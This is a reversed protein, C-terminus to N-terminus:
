DVFLFENTCLIVQAFEEWTKENPAAGLLKKGIAVEQVTAPRGLATEYASQIAKEVNGGGAAVIRKGFAKAQAVAFPDNLLFLAQPAVTSSVRTDVSATTDAADFLPGFGTRDSRITMLYLTRRPEQFNRTSPGGMKRDLTGASALLSDRIAEAELRKRNMRTFLLNGADKQMAEKGPKNSQQYAESLMMLKHLKKLSWGFRLSSPHPILSSSGRNATEDRMGKGEDRAVFTAALWDLLEPHTPRLGLAGFNSPTRVLGEGFHHQWVRNVIVRATLPNDPKTVWKALELRGSGQTIPAEREGGLVAPFGRPALDGLRDYNGRIHIRVDHVGAHPSNSIGGEQAANAMEIPGPAMKRHEALQTELGAIKQQAPTALSSRDGALGPYLPSSAPPTTPLKLALESVAKEVADRNAGPQDLKVLAGMIADYPPKAPEVTVEHFSWIGANGLKDSHPNGATLDDVIDKTAWTKGGMELKLDVLTTDCSYENKPLVTIVLVDGKKVSVAKLAEGNSGARVDQQGGNEFAGGSVQRTQGGSRVAISWAIGNGCAPDEDVIKGSVALSGDALVRWEISVPSMPGPHVSLSRPLLTPTGLSKNENTTNATISPLGTPRTFGIVGPNGGVDRAVSTMLPNGGLGLRDMCQRVAFPQLWKKRAFEDVTVGTQDAPRHAYDYAALIYETIRPSLEAQVATAASAVESNLQGELEALRAQYKQRRMADEETLLPVRLVNEGAGKPTLAPLIHTSFFIGAMAYYDKATFPDFKHDHCRACALTVGLFARSVVDIQDDVIDTIIKDKDADGNGWNGIALMGTAITGDVNLGPKKQAIQNAVGAPMGLSTLQAIAGRPQTRATKDTAQAEPPMVDGAIQYQLFKDYPMDRNLSNVVWDRYKWALGIDGESGVSRADLSDCYRVLDLWHRGWREGYAPSTLLRDIVKEWANPSKDNLFAQVEQPAPPLGTLDFTARRILTRRDARPAPQVGAAKMKAILFSDIPNVIASPRNDGSVWVTQKPVAPLKVPRFSWWSKGKEVKSVADGTLVAIKPKPWPAGAAVWSELAAIETDSLKGGPPMKLDGTQKIAAILKSEGPKGPVVAAGRSGGKLTSDLTDLRLGGHQKDAGHCSGCKTVLLPRIVQEFRDNETTQAAQQAFLPAAALAAM